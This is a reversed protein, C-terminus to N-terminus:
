KDDACRVYRMHLLEAVLRCGSHRTKFPGNGSVWGPMDLRGDSGWAEGDLQLQSELLAKKCGLYSEMCSHVRYEAPSTQDSQGNLFVQSGHCSVAMQFVQCIIKSDAPYGPEIRNSALIWSPKELAGTSEDFRRTEL